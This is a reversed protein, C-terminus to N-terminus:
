VASPEDQGYLRWHIFAQGENGTESEVRVTLPDRLIVGLAANIQRWQDFILNVYLDQEERELGDLGKTFGPLESVVPSQNLPKKLKASLSIPYSDDEVLEVVELGKTKDPVEYAEAMQTLLKKFEDIVKEFIQQGSMSLVRDVSAVPPLDLPQRGVTEMSHSILAALRDANVGYIGFLKELARAFRQSRFYGSIDIYKKCLETFRKDFNESELALSETMALIMGDLKQLLDAQLREELEPSLQKGSFAHMWKEHDPILSHHVVYSFLPHRMFYRDFIPRQDTMYSDYFYHEDGKGIVFERPKIDYIKKFADMYKYFFKQRKSKNSDSLWDFAASSGSKELSNFIRILDRVEAHLAALNDFVQLCSADLERHDNLFHDSSLNKSHRIQSRLNIEYDYDDSSGDEDDSEVEIINRLYAPQNRLRLSQYKYQSFIHPQKQYLSLLIQYQGDEIASNFIDRAFDMENDDDGPFSHPLLMRFLKGDDVASATHKSIKRTCKVDAALLSNVVPWYRRSFAIYIPTDGQSDPENAPAGQELLWDLVRQQGHAAAYYLCNRGHDDKAAFDADHARLLRAADANGKGCAQMLPTLGSDASVDVNVGREILWEIVALQGSEVAYHLCSRGAADRAAFNPHHAHLVRLIEANGKGCAQMLPTVGFSTSSDVVAGQDLLWATMETDSREVAFHLCCKGSAVKVNPNGGAAHLCKAISLHGSKVAHVLAINVDRYNSSAVLTRVVSVFGNSAAYILPNTGSLSPTARLANIVAQHERLVADRPGKEEVQAPLRETFASGGESRLRKVAPETSTEIDM